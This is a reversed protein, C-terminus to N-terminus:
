PSLLGTFATVDIVKNAILVVIIAVLLKQTNQLQIAIEVHGRKLDSYRRACQRVHLSLNRDEQPDPVALPDQGADYEPTHRFLADLLSM